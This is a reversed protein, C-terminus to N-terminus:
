QIIIEIIKVKEKKAMIKLKTIKLILEQFILIAKMLIPFTIIKLNIKKIKM